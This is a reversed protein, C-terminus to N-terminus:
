RRRTMPRSGTKSCGHAAPQTRTGRACLVDKIAIPIGTLPTASGAAIREDAARAQELAGERDVSLFRRLRGM